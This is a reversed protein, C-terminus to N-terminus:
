GSAECLVRAAAAALDEYCEEIEGRHAALTQRGVGTLVLIGRAGVRQAAVLDSWKDGIMPAGALSLGHEAEIRRLLGAHPKRCDCGDAPAHPCFYIGEIEGGAAAVAALMKAHIAALTELTFLGRGIGSQNTVVFTRYGAQALMAIAELSGALAHWESPHKIYDASDSNIVGDRDLVIAKSGPRAM